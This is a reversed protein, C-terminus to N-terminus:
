SKSWGRKWGAACPPIESCLMTQLPATKVGTFMQPSQKENYLIWRKEKIIVSRKSIPLSFFVVSEHLEKYTRMTKRKMTTWMWLFYHWLPYTHIQTPAHTTVSFWAFHNHLLSLLLCLPAVASFLTLHIFLFVSFPFLLSTPQSPFILCKQLKM